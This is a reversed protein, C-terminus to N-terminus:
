TQPVAARLDALTWFSRRQQGPDTKPYDSRAHGGRSETRVLGSATVIWAALAMNRISLNLANDKIQGLTELAAELGPGSREVGVHKAMVMRIARAAEAEAHTQMVSGSQADIECRRLEPDPMSRVIDEAIRASFVVAELLSNSALRNAGHAGTSSVEGAAWLGDLSTRGFADTLIGGMHYHAAPEVPLPETVPDLGADKASEYVTPFAEPFATGIAQRCDLFAGRGSQVARHIARAVIDRPALELDPHVGEMLRSGDAHILTAGKGRLAETALPAPDKGVALATPHFQVFEADAIIAGARAAMALGQGRAEVPNTTTAYLGGVGGSTLVVARAHFNTLAEAQGAYGRAQLGVVQRGESLLMEVVHNEIVRISPTNRVADILAAMIAKGARDGQVHVIRDASHAAERGFTLRGALDTDFPVGYRLLDEIRANAERVLLEAMAEDVLGAGAAITDALHAQWTDGEAIAAAIGGQAWASSAGVGLPASTIVTVPRPAMKLACFLGALGGGVILVDDVHTVTQAVTHSGAEAM